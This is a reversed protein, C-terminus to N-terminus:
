TTNKKNNEHDIIEIVYKMVEFPTQAKRILSKTKSKSSKKIIENEFIELKLSFLIEKNLPDPLEEGFVYNLFFKLIFSIQEPTRKEVSVDAYDALADLQGQEQAIQIVARKFSTSQAKDYDYTKQILQEMTFTELIEKVEPNEEDTVNVTMSVAEQNENEYTLELLTYNNDVFHVDVVKELDIM